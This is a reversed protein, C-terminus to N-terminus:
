GSVPPLMSDCYGVHDWGGEAVPKRCKVCLNVKCAVCGLAPQPVRAGGPLWRRAHGGPTEKLSGPVEECQRMCGACNSRGGPPLCLRLRERKNLETKFNWFHFDAANGNYYVFGQKTEEPQRDYPRFALGKLAASMGGVYVQLTFEFLVPLYRYDQPVVEQLSQSSRATRPQPSELCVRVTLPVAGSGIQIKNTVLLKCYSNVICM